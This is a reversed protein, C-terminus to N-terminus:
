SCFISYGAKTLHSWMMFYGPKWRDEYDSDSMANTIVANFLLFGEFLFFINLWTYRNLVIM